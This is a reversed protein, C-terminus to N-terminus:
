EDVGNANDEICLTVKENQELYIKICPNEINRELLIDKANTIINMIAQSYENKYGNIKYDNEIDILLKINNIELMSKVIKSANLVADKILFDEKKTNPNFFNRFDDITKSMYELLDNAEDVREDLYKKNLEKYAYASEIDFFLGSIQSLPQRWQHAINAIMEGMSAM